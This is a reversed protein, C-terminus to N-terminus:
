RIYTSPLLLIFIYYTAVKFGFFEYLAVFKDVMGVLISEKYKPQTKNLPYMHSEIINKEIDNLEYYKNANELALFPHVIHYVKRSYLGLDENTYFDHLLAGRTITKTDLKLLKSTLFSYYGVRNIHDLRPIGHHYGNKLEKYKDIQYISDYIKKYEEKYKKM